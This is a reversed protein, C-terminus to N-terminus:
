SKPTCVRKCPEPPGGTKSCMQTEIDDICERAAAGDFQDSGDCRPDGTASLDAMLRQECTQPTVGLAALMGPDCRQISSCTAKAWASLAEQQTL